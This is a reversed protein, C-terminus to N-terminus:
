VIANTIRRAAAWYRIMKENAHDSLRIFIRRGDDPDAVREFIGEDTMRKIWRLATTPPVAAAICLSSVAVQVTELRAAMLDLLMDWAPDAFLDSEFFQERVRRARITARLETSSPGQTFEAHQPEARFGMMMDQVGTALGRHPEPESLNALAKAIRGVEDAIRRLRMSEIDTASDRLLGTETAMALRLAVVRDILSPTCLLTVSDDDLWGSFGDIQDLSTSVLAIPSRQGALASIRDLLPNVITPSTRACEVMVADVSIQDDLRQAAQSIDVHGAMRGGAAELASQALNGAERTDSIVLINPRANVEEPGHVPQVALDPPILNQEM